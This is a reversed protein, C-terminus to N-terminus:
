NLGCKKPILIYKKLKILFLFRTNQEKKLFHAIEKKFSLLYSFIFSILSLDRFFFSIIKRM